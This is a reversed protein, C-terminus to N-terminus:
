FSLGIGGGEIGLDSTTGHGLKGVAHRLDGLRPDLLGPRGDTGVLQAASAYAVFAIETM